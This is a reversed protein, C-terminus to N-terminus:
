AGINSIRKILYEKHLVAKQLEATTARVDEPLGLSRSAAARWRGGTKSPDYKKGMGYKTPVMRVEGDSRVFVVREVIEENPKPIYRTIDGTYPLWRVRRQIYAIDTGAKPFALQAVGVANGFSDRLENADFDYHIRTIGAERGVFPNRYRTVTGDAYTREIYIDPDQFGVFRGEKYIAKVRGKSRIIPVETYDPYASIPM